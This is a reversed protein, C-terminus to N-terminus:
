LKQGYVAGTAFSRLGTEILDAARRVGATVM